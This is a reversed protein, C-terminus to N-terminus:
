RSLIENIKDEKWLLLDEFTMSIRRKGDQSEVVLGGLSNLNRDKVIRIMLYPSLQSADEKRVVLRSEEGLAKIGVDAMKQLLQYYAPSSTFAKLRQSLITKGGEVRKEKAEMQTKRAQLRAAAVLKTSGMAIDSEASAANESNLRATELEVSHSLTAKETEAQKQIEALERETRDKVEKVLDELSM